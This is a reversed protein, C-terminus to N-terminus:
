LGRDSRELYIGIDPNLATFLDDWMEIMPYPPSTVVLNISEDDLLDLKRSDRYIIRHFTQM